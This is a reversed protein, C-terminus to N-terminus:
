PARKAQWFQGYPWFVSQCFVLYSAELSKRALRALFNQSLHIEIGQIGAKAPIVGNYDLGDDGHLRPYPYHCSMM